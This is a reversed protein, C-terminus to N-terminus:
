GRPGAGSGGRGGPGGPGRAGARVAARTWVSGRPATRPARRPPPRPRAASRRSGPPAPARRPAKERRCSPPSTGCPPCPSRRARPQLALSLHPPRPPLASPSTAGATSRRPLPASHRARPCLATSAAECTLCRLGLPGRTAGSGGSPDPWGQWSLVPQHPLLASLSWCAWEPPLQFFKPSAALKLATPGPSAPCKSVWCLRPGGMQVAPSQLGQPLSM